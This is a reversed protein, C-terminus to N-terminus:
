NGGCGRIRKRESATLPYSLIPPRHAGESVAEEFLMRDGTEIPHQAHDKVIQTGREGFDVLVASVALRTVRDRDNLMENLVPFDEETVCSRLAYLTYMNVGRTMHAFGVNRDIVRKLLSYRSDSEPDCAAAITLLLAGALRLVKIM